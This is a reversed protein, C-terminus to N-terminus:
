GARLKEEVRRIAEEVRWPRDAGELSDGLSMWSNIRKQASIVTTHSRRGFYEGIESLANRTHKRALWMALMRPHSISKAKRQSRLSEPQLGFTECVAKEIDSLHIVRSSHVWLDSLAEEAMATTIPEGTAQQTAQLRHVAGFLERASESFRAAVMDQVEDPVACDRKHVYRKVIERRTLMDPASMRCVSGGTLRSTLEPGLGELQHPPRDASIVVQRGNRLLTDITHLLEGATTKKGQFFQIDDILLLDVGRYKRRFSPLGSHHLAELFLSTFQEAALMVTASKPSRKKFASWTSELLHTKGVGTSGWVYLPSASGPEDAALLASAHAVRNCHGVVFTDFESIRVSADRTASTRPSRGQGTQREPGTQSPSTTGGQAQENSHIRLPPPDEDVEEVAEALEPNVQFQLEIAKGWVELVCEDLQKRFNARLWDHFFPTAVEITLLSDGLVFRTQAGFWLAYREQGLRRVLADRLKVLIEMDGSAVEQV